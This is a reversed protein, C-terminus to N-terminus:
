DPFQKEPYELEGVNQDMEFTDEHVDYPEPKKKRKPCLWDCVWM